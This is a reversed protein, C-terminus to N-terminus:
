ENEEHISKVLHKPIYGAGNGGDYTVSIFEDGFVIGTSHLYVNVEDYITVITIKKM